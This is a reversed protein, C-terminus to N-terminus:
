AVMIAYIHISFGYEVKELFYGADGAFGPMLARHRGIQLFESGFTGQFAAGVFRSVYDDDLFGRGALFINRNENELGIGYTM